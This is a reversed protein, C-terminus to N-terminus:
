KQEDAWMVELVDQYDAATMADIGAPTVHLWKAMRVRQAREVEDSDLRVSKPFKRSM